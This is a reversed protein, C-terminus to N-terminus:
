LSVNKKNKLNFIFYALLTGTADALIDLWDFSRHLQPFSYQIIELFIGYLIVFIVITKHTSTPASKKYFLFLLALLAFIFIHVLKDFNIKGLNNNHYLHESPLLLLILVIFFWCIGIYFYKM